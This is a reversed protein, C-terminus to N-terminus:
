RQRMAVLASALAVCTASEALPFALPATALVAAAIPPGISFGAQWTFGVIGLYRGRLQAPAISVVTPILVATYVCESVAYVVLVAAFGLAAPWGRVTAGIAAAIAWAAAWGVCALALALLPPRRSVARTIRLQAVLITAANVAYIIGITAAPVGAQGRAFAPLIWLMPAIAASVMVLNTGALVRLRRDRLAAAYGGTGRETIVRPNPLRLVLLAFGLFTVSDLVLLTTYGRALGLAVIVGGMLSGLSLGLVASMRQQSLAAARQEPTVMASLLSQVSPGYAGTGVGVALGVAFAQWAFSVRTYAAYAIANAAMALALGTRPGVRDILPGAVLGSTTALIGGSAVALSAVPLPIGRESHLYLILYPAVLGNGFFNLIVGGQLLWAYRPLGPTVLWGTGLRLAGAAHLRPQM